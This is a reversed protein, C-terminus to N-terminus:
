LVATQLTEIYMWDTDKVCMNHIVRHEINLVNKFNSLYYSCKGFVNQLVATNWSKDFNYNCSNYFKYIEGAYDKFKIQRM